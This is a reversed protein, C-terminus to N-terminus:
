QAATRVAEAADLAALSRALDRGAARAAARLAPAEAPDPPPARRDLRALVAVLQPLAFNGAAGKLRHARQRVEDAQGALLAQAIGEAEPHLQALMLALLDRTRAPGLDALTEAVAPAIAPAACLRHLAQALMEPTLPKAIVEDMGAARAAAQDEPQAHASVGIVPVWAAPGPLARLRRTTEIGSIGPLSVDMLVADFGAPALSLAEEGSGAIVPRHGLQDLFDQAVQQNVPHDEVVLV